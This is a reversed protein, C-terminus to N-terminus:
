DASESRLEAWYPCIPAAQCYLKCRLSGGDRKEIAAAAFKKGVKKDMRRAHRWSEAEDLSDLLRSARSAGPVVVAYKPPKAWREEPSCPTDYGKLHAQLRNDLFAQQREQSWLALPIRQHQSPPYEGTRDFHAKAKSWDRYYANIAVEHVEGGNRRVLLALLNLQQEWKSEQRNVRFEDVSVVKHDELFWKDGMRYLLDYQGSWTVGLDNTFLRDEYRIEDYGPCLRDIIASKHGLVKPMGTELMSHILKGFLAYISDAVDVEVDNIEPRSLQHVRYPADLLQTVSIDAKGRSYDDDVIAAVIAPNLGTRNTYKV